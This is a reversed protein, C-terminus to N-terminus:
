RRGRWRAARRLVPGRRKGWRASSRQVLALGAHCCSTAITSRWPAAVVARPTGAAATCSFIGFMSNGVPRLVNSGNLLELTGPTNARLKQHIKSAVGAQEPPLPGAPTANAGGYFRTPETGIRALWVGSGGPM